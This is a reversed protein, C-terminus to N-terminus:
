NGEFRPDRKEIFAEYARRFDQTTMCDAQARAEADIASDLPMSWEDHLMKKTMAHAVAPGHAITRAMETARYKVDSPECLDNYFGWDFAQTGSMVRGTYLLESARGMGIIRPLMACAGMDCGALGVRVFLFAVKSRATGYRLDSAMALIAGAGVCVGDIAAVIPQPAARMAKVLDGTMQTFARLEGPTRTTLPGIIDRVDGGSCFNEGAGTLVVAKIDDRRDLSRFWDRLEAYLAFTLPNKREPRDLTVTAVRDEVDYRVNTM